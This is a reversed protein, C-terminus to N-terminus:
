NKHTKIIRSHRRVIGGYPHELRHWYVAFDFPTCESGESKFAQIEKKVPDLVIASHFTECFLLSQTEEDVRSMFCGFGPHSHYWGIIVYDFGSTDLESFLRSLNRHDFRVRNPSSELDGTVIDRAMVFISDNKQCVDGLIFGMAEARTRMLKVSHNAMKEAATKSVYLDFYGPKKLRQRYRELGDKSLWAHPKILGKEPFDREILPRPTSSVIRPNTTQIM